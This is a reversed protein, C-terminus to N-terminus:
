ALYVEVDRIESKAYYEQWHLTLDGCVVTNEAKAEFLLEGNRYVKIEGKTFRLAFKDSMAAIPAGEYKGVLEEGEYLEILSALACVRLELRGLKVSSYNNSDRWGHNATRHTFALMLDDSNVSFDKASVEFPEGQYKVIFKNFKTSIRDLAGTFNDTSTFDSKYVKKLGLTMDFAGKISIKKECILGGDLTEATVMIEGLCKPFVRGYRDVTAIDTDSSKFLVTKVSANEPYVSTKLTLSAGLSVTDTVAELSIKEPHVLAEVEGEGNKNLERVEDIIADFWRAAIKKNGQEDPHGDDEYFDGLSRRLIEGNPELDVFALKKGEKAFKGPAENKLWADLDTKYGFMSIQSAAYVSANPALRWIERLLDTYRNTINDLELKQGYDNAGIWLLVIDVGTLCKAYGENRLNKRVSGGGEDFDDGIVYGCNGGHHNYLAPLRIDDRSNSPGAFRFSAGAKFLKEFLAYRYASPNGDGETLSDGMCFIKVTKGM